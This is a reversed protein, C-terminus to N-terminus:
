PTSRRRRPAPTELAAPGPKPAEEAEETTTQTPLTPSKGNRGDAIIERVHVRDQELIRNPAVTARANAGMQMLMDRRQAMARSAVELQGALKKAQFYDEQVEKYRPDGIVENHIMTETFKHKPNMAMFNSHQTRKEADLAAAVNELVAKKRDALYKAEEALFSYFAYRQPQNSFEEELDNRNINLDNELTHEYKIGNLNIGILPLKM